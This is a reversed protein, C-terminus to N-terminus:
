LFLPELSELEEDTCEGADKRGNPYFAQKFIKGKVNMRIRDRAKQGAEDMDTALVFVRCPMESLEKFQQANGLGNLAIAFKGVQWLRLADIMSEVIWVELPFEELQYLEYIGYCNKKVNAPYNFFKTKVSRRAIFLCKGAINRDPMTICKTEIDYGLDFLEILWEEVIGRKKWYPHYYRYKDLEEETVYHASDLASSSSTNDRSINVEFNREESELYVFNKLLWNWGYAGGDRRGFCHSILEPFSVAHGEECTFCHGIGTRIDIGFSPRREQGNGHFPCQVQINHGSQRPEKELLKIGKMHLEARLSSLMDDLSQAFEVGDINM